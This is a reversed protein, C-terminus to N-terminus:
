SGQLQRALDLFTPFKELNKYVRPLNNQVARSIAVDWSM